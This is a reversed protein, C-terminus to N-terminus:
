WLPSCAFPRVPWRAYEALLSLWSLLYQLVALLTLLVYLLNHALDRSYPMQLADLILCPWTLNMVVSSIGHAQHEDLLKKRCFIWGPILMLFIKALSFLIQEVSM